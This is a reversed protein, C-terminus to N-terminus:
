IPQQADRVMYKQRAVRRGRTKATYLGTIAPGARPELVESLLRFAWASTVALIHRSLRSSFTRVKITAAWSIPTALPAKAFGM